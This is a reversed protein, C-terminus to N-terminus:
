TGEATQLRLVLQVKALSHPWHAGLRAQRRARGGACRGYVRGPTSWQRRARPCGWPVWQEGPRVVATREEWWEPRTEPQVLSEMMLALRLRSPRVWQGSWGEAPLRSLSAAKVSWARVPSRPHDRSLGVPTPDGSWARAACRRM